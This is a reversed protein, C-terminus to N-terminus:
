VEGKGVFFEFQAVGDVTATMAPRGDSLANAIESKASMM